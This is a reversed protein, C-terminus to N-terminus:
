TVRANDKRQGTRTETAERAASFAIEPISGSGVAQKAEM